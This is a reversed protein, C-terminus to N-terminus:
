LFIVYVFKISSKELFIAMEINKKNSIYDNPSTRKHSDYTIFTSLNIEKSFLEITTTIDAPVERVESSLRRPQPHRLVKKVKKQM